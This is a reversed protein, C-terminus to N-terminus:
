NSDDECPVEVRFYGVCGVFNPPKYPGGSAALVEVLQLVVQQLQKEDVAFVRWQCTDANKEDGNYVFSVAVGDGLDHRTLESPLTAADAVVDVVEQTRFQRM